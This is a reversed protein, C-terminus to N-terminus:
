DEDAFRFFNLDTLRDGFRDIAKASYDLSYAYGEFEKRLFETLERQTSLLKMQRARGKCVAALAEASDGIDKRIQKNTNDLEHRTARGKDSLRVIRNVMHNHSTSWKQLDHDPHDDATVKGFPSDYWQNIIEYISDVLQENTRYLKGYKKNYQKWNVAQWQTGTLRYCFRRTQNEFKTGEKMKSKQSYKVYSAIGVLEQNLNLVPSGSNGSVFDATVEVVDAGVGSVTGYLETAVGGGDSNGFVGVPLDMEITAALEFGDEDPLLLRAIDRTASLEV